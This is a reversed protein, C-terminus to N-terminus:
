HDDPFGLHCAIGYTKKKHAGLKHLVKQFSTHRPGFLKEIFHPDTTLPCGHIVKIRFWFPSCVHTM